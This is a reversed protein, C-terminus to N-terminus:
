ERQLLSALDRKMAARAPWLGAGLAAVFALLLAQILVGPPLKWFITWGFFQRNIVYIMQWALFLGAAVSLGWAFLAMLSFELLNMKRLQNKGAGMARLSAMEQQRELLLSVLTDFVGVAAVLLAILQLAYTVAFTQDFTKFVEDRIDRNPLLLLAYRGGFREELDHQLSETSASSHLYLALAEIQHDDWLQEYVHRSLYIVDNPNYDYFVGGIAFSRAGHPTPLSLSQGAKLNLLHAVRESVLICKGAMYDAEAADVGRVTEV